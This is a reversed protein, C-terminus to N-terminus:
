IERMLLILPISYTYSVYINKDCEKRRETTRKRQKATQTTKPEAFVGWDGIIGRKGPM